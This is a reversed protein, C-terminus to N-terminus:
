KVGEGSFTTQRQNLRARVMEIHQRLGYVEDSYALPVNIAAVRAELKHLSGLLEERSREKAEM